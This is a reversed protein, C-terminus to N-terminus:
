PLWVKSHEWLVKDLDACLRGRAVLRYVAEFVRSAEVTVHPFIDKMWFVPTSRMVDLVQVDAAPDELENITWLRLLNERRQRSYANADVVEMKHALKLRMTESEIQNIQAWTSEKQLSDANRVFLLIRYGTRMVVLIDHTYTRRKGTVQCIFDVSCPQFKIDYVDPNLLVELAVAFEASSECIGYKPSWNNAETKYTFHVRHASNSRASPNRVGDYPLIGRMNELKIRPAKRTKVPSYTWSDHEYIEHEFTDETMPIDAEAM